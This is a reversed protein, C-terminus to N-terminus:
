PAPQAPTDAAPALASRFEGSQFLAGLDSLVECYAKGLAQEMDGSSALFSSVEGVRSLPWTRAPATGAAVTVQLDVEGITKGKLVFGSFDQMANLRLFELTVTAAAVNDTVVTYGVAGLLEWGNAALVADPLDGSFVV